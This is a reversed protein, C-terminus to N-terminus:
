HAVNPGYSREGAMVAFPLHNQAPPLPCVYSPNYACYPNYARNFDLLYLGNGLEALPAYRGAGYTQAGNTADKFFISLEGEQANRYIEMWFEKGEFRFVFRGFREFSVHTGTNTLMPVQRPNGYRHLEGELRYTPDPEFYSLGAFDARAELPIPSGPDASRFLSDKAVRALAIGGLASDDARAWGTSLLVTALAWALPLLTATRPQTTPRASVTNPTSLTAM